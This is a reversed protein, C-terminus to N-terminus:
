LFPGGVSKHYWLLAQHYLSWRARKFPHWWTAWRPSNLVPEGGLMGRDSLKAVVWWLLKAV